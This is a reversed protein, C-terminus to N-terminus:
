FKSSLIARYFLLREPMEAEPSQSLRSDCGLIILKHLLHVLFQKSLFQRGFFQEALHHSM